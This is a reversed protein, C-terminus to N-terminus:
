CDTSNESKTIEYKSRVAQHFFFTSDIEAFVCLTFGIHNGKSIQPLFLPFFYLSIKLNHFSFVGGKSDELSTQLFNQLKVTYICM